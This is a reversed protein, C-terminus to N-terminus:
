VCLYARMCVCMCVCSCACACMCVSVCVSVCVCVVCVSVCVYLACVSVCVSVCVCVCVSLCLCVCVCVCLCLCVCVRILCVIAVLGTEACQSCELVPPYHSPLSHCHLTGLNHSVYQCRIALHGESLIEKSNNYVTCYTYTPVPLPQKKLAQPHAITFPNEYVCERDTQRDTYSSAARDKLAQTSEPSQFCATRKRRDSTDESTLRLAM